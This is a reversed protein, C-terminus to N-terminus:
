VVVFTEGAESGHHWQGASQVSSVAIAGVRDLSSPVGPALPGAFPRANLWAMAARRGIAGPGPSTSGSGLVVGGLVFFVVATVGAALVAIPTPVANRRRSGTALPDQAAAETGPGRRPSPTAPPRAPRPPSAPRPPDPHAEPIPARDPGSRRAIGPAVVHVTSGDNMGAEALTSAGSIRDGSDDDLDSVNAVNVAAGLGPALRAVPVDAPVRTSTRGGGPAVVTM